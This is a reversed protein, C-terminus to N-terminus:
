SNERARSQLHKLRVHEERLVRLQRSTTAVADALRAVRVEGAASRLLLDVLSEYDDAAAIVAPPTSGPPTGRAELM